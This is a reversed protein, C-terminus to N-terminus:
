RGSPNPASDAFTRCMKDMARKVTAYAQLTVYERNSILAEMESPLRHLKELCLDIFWYEDPARSLLELDTMDDESKPAIYELALRRM